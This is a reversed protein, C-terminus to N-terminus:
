RGPRGRLKSWDIVNVVSVTVICAVAATIWCMVQTIFADSGFALKCALFLCVEAGCVCIIKLFRVRIFFMLVVLVLAIVLETVVVGLPMDASLVARPLADTLLALSRLM